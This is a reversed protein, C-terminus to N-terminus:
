KENTNMIIPPYIIHEASVIYVPMLANHTAKDTTSGSSVDQAQPQIGHRSQTHSTNMDEGYWM